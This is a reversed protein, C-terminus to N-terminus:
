NAKIPAYNAYLTSVVWCTNLRKPHNWTCIRTWIIWASVETWKNNNVKVSLQSILMYQHDSRICILDMKGYCPRTMQSLSHFWYSYAVWELIMISVINPVVWKSYAYFTIVNLLRILSDKCKIFLFELVGLFVADVKGLFTWMRTWGITKRSTSAGM